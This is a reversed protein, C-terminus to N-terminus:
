EAVGRLREAIHLAIRSFEPDARLEPPRPHPFRIEVTELIRGPKAGMVLVRQSLFVAEGVNHTVFLATWRQKLWINLLEENLRQRLVRYCILASGVKHPFHKARAM